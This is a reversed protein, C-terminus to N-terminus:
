VGFWRKRMLSDDEAKYVLTWSIWPHTQKNTQKFGPKIKVSLHSQLDCIGSSQRLGPELAAAKCTSIDRLGSTAYNAWQKYGEGPNRNVSQKPLLPTSVSNPRPRSERPPAPARQSMVFPRSWRLTHTKTRAIHFPPWHCLMLHSKSRKQGSSSPVRPLKEDKKKPSRFLQRRRWTM